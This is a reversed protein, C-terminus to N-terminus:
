IDIKLINVIFIYCYRGLPEFAWLGKFNWWAKTYVVFNIISFNLFQDTCTLNEEVIVWETWSGKWEFVKLFRNFRIWGSDDNRIMEDARCGEYWHKWWRISVELVNIRGMLILILILIRENLVIEMCCPVLSGIFLWVLTTCRTENSAPPNWHPVLM